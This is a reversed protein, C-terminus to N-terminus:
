ILAFWILSIFFNSARKISEHVTREEVVDLVVEAALMPTRELVELVLEM